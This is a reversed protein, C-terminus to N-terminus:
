VENISNKNSSYGWKKQGLSVGYKSCLDVWPPLLDSSLQWRGEKDADLPLVVKVWQGHRGDLAPTAAMITRTAAILDSAEQVPIFKPVAPVFEGVTIGMGELLAQFTDPRHIDDGM